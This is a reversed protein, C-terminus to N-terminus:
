KIFTIIFKTGISVKSRVSIEGDNAEIIKKSLSLGIGISEPNINNSGKHFRNFIKSIDKKAIGSGNDEIEVRTFVESEIISIDIKGNKDTHEIGNKIINMIAECVWPRDHNLNIDKEEIISLKINKEQAKARLSSIVEKVTENISQNEKKYRVVDNDLRAYKLLSKVLFDIRRIQGHSLEIFKDIDSNDMERHGVLIQNYVGMAALPTKLQHSIDSITNKLNLKELRLRDVSNDMRSKMMMFQTELESVSNDFLKEDITGVQKGELILDAKSRLNEICSILRNTKVFMYTFLIVIIITYIYNITKNISKYGVFSPNFLYNLDEKYSYESLIEQGVKYYSSDGKTIATIVEEMEIGELQSIKGILAINQEVNKNSVEQLTIDIAKNLGLLGIIFIIVAVIIVKKRESVRLVEM